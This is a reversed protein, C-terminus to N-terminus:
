SLAALLAATDIYSNWSVIKGDQVRWRFMWEARGSKGTKVSRGEYHGFSFVEDGVAINEKAGFSTTQMEASLKAFFQAAGQPGTYDGGWPLTKPQQWDAGPAVLGVIHSIDGRNFADYISDVVQAPTMTPKPTM